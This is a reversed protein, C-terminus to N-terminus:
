KLSQSWIELDLPSVLPHIVAISPDYKRLDFDGCVGVYGSESFSYGGGAVINFQYAVDKRLFASVAFKVYGHFYALTTIDQIDVTASEALVTGDSECIQVKLTGVPKNHVYIHPRVAGVLTNKEPTLNQSVSTTIEHVVLKM